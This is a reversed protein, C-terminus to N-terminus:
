KQYNEVKMDSLGLFENQDENRDFHEVLVHPDPDPHNPNQLFSHGLPDTLILTFQMRGERCDKLQKLLEKMRKAFGSDSDAFPNNENL